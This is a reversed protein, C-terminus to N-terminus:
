SQLTVPYLFKPNPSLRGVKEENVASQVWELWKQDTLTLWQSIFPAFWSEVDFDQVSSSVLVSTLTIEKWKIWGCCCKRCSHSRM